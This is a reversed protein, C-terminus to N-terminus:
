KLRKAEDLLDNLCRDEFRNLIEIATQKRTFLVDFVSSLAMEIAEDGAAVKAPERVLEALIPFHPHAFNPSGDANLYVELSNLVMEMAQRRVTLSGTKVKDMAQVVLDASLSRQRSARLLYEGASVAPVVENSQMFLKMLLSLQDEGLTTISSSGLNRVPAVEVTEESVTETSATVAVDSMVELGAFSRARRNLVDRAEAKHNGTKTYRTLVTFIAKLPGSDNRELANEVISDLFEITKTSPSIFRLALLAGTAAADTGEAAYKRVTRRAAAVEMNRDTKNEDGKPFSLLMRQANAGAAIIIENLAKNAARLRELQEPKPGADIAVGYEHLTKVLKLYISLFRPNGQVTTLYISRFKTLTAMAEDASAQNRAVKNRSILDLMNRQKSYRSDQKPESEGNAAFTPIDIDVESDTEDAEEAEARSTPVAAAVIDADTVGLKVLQIAAGAKVIVVESKFLELLKAKAAELAPGNLEEKNESKLGRSNEYSRIASDLYSIADRKLNAESADAPRAHLMIRADLMRIYVEAYRPAKYLKYHVHKSIREITPWDITDLNYSLAIEDILSFRSAFTDFNTHMLASGALDSLKKETSANASVLARIVSPDTVLTDKQLKAAALRLDLSNASTLYEAVVMPLVFHADTMQNTAVAYPSRFVEGLVEMAHIKDDASMTGMRECIAFALEESLNVQEAKPINTKPFLSRIENLAIRSVTANPDSIMFRLRKVLVAAKDADREINIAVVTAIARAVRIREPDDHRVSAFANRIAPENAAAGKIAHLVFFYEAFPADTATGAIALLSARKIEEYLSHELNTVHPEELIAMARSYVKPNPSSLALYCLELAELRLRAVQPQGPFGNKEQWLKESIAFEDLATIQDRPSAQLFVEKLKSFDNKVAEMAPPLAFVNASILFAFAILFSRITPM